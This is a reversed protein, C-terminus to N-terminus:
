SLLTVHRRAVLSIGHPNNLSSSDNLRFFSVTGNSHGTM